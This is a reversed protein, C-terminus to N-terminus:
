NFQIAATTASALGTGSVRFTRSGASGTVNILTFSVAGSADTVRTLTGNLTGGGSAIAITLQVGQLAVADDDSDQLQATITFNTGLDIPGAPASTIEIQTASQATFTVPNGTIGSGAVTARLTNPAGSGLTWSGVAAQGQADTSQTLGTATGGGQLVAFTVTAGIVRNGSGDTVRVTPPNDVATGQVATEAAGAIAIVRAAAGATGTADFTVSPLGEATATVTNPGVTAGLTWSTVAAIGNANTTDPSGVVTGGGDTVTFAVRVGPVPIGQADRVIVSPPDSVRTDVPASQTTQSVAVMSVPLGAVGTATFRVPGLGPSSATLRNTGPLPGLFWGGVTATGSADTVQRSGVVSGGGATASFTVIAGPVGDGAADRVVVTPAIPVLRGVPAQQNDGATAVMEAGTPATATATFVIPNNVVGSEEVRAALSQAGVTPGLIWSGVAAVGQADTTGVGDVVRGGGSLVSFTVPVGPVLNGFADAVRVSPAISVASGAPATQRDGAVLSVTAARAATVTATVMASVGSEATATLVNSGATTGLTWRTLAVGNGDTVASAPDVSGGQTATFTVTAGSLPQEDTGFVRVEIPDALLGGAPGQVSGDAVAEVRAAPLPVSVTTEGCGALGALGVTIGVAV